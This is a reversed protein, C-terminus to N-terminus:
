HGSLTKKCLELLYKDKMIGRTKTKSVYNFRKSKPDNEDPQVFLFKEQCDIKFIPKVKSNYGYEAIITQAKEISEPNNQVYIGDVWFFIYDPGIKETIELMVDSVRKCITFWINETEESREIDQKILQKGKFSYHNVKKALSGLCVMRGRKSIEDSSGISYLDESIVGLQYATEWYAQDIDIEVVNDFTKGVLGPDAEMYLVDKDFYDTKFRLAIDNKRIYGKVKNVFGVEKPTISNNVQYTRAYIHESKFTYNGHVSILEFEKDNFSMHKALNIIHQLKQKKALDRQEPTYVRDRWAPIKSNKKM